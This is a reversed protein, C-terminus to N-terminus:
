RSRSRRLSNLSDDSDRWASLLRAWRNVVVGHENERKGGVSESRGRFRRTQLSRLQRAM